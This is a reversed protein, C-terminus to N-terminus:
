ENGSVTEYPWSMIGGFDYVETYGMSVLEKAARSSRNGSRCYVLITADKDPLVSEAQAAIENNPILIAGEIHSEEYEASTRVDLLIYDEDGDMVAKAEKATMKHYKAASGTAQSDSSNKAAKGPGCSFLFFPLAILVVALLIILNTHKLISNRKTM